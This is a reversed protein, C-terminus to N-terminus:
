HRFDGLGTKNNTIGQPDTIGYGLKRFQYIFGKASLLINIPLVTVAVPYKRIIMGYYDVLRHKFRLNQGGYEKTYAARYTSNWYCSHRSTPKLYELQSIDGVAWAQARYYIKSYDHAVRGLTARFCAFHDGDQQKRIRLFAKEFHSVDQILVPHKIRLGDQRAIHILAHDVYREKLGYHDRFRKYLIRQAYYPTLRDPPNHGNGYKGWLQLWQEYISNPLINSLVAGHPNERWQHHELWDVQLLRLIPLGKEINVSRKDAIFVRATKMLETVNASNWKLDKQIPSVSGVIWLVNNGKSVGWIAPGYQDVQVAPLAATTQSSALATSARSTDTIVHWGILVAVTFFALWRSNMSHGSAALM